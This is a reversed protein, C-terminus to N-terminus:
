WRKVAPRSNKSFYRFIQRVLAYLTYCAGFCIVALLQFALAEEAISGNMKVVQYLQISILLNTVALSIVLFTLLRKWNANILWLMVPEFLWVGAALLLFSLLFHVYSPDIGLIAFTGIDFELWKSIVNWDVWEKM